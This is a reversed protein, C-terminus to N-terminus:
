HFETLPEGLRRDYGRTGFQLVPCWIVYEGPQFPLGLTTVSLEQM